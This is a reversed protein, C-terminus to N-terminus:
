FHKTLKYFKKTFEISLIGLLDRYDKLMSNKSWILGNESGKQLAM